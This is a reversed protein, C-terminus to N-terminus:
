RRGDREHCPGFRSVSGAEPELRRDFQVAPLDCPVGLGHGCAGHHTHGHAAYSIFEVTARPIDKRAIVLVPMGAVIGIPAFDTIPNYVAEPQARRRATLEWIVLIPTYGDPTARMARPPWRGALGPANEIVVQQGTHACARVVIRGVVDTPGGAAFPVILTVMRVPYNSQAHAANLGPGVLSFIFALAITAKQSLM